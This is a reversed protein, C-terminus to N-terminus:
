KRKKLWKEFEHHMLLITKGIETLNKIEKIIDNKNGSFEGICLGFTDPMEEYHKITNDVEKQTISIEKQIIIKKM